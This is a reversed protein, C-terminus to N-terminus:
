FEEVISANTTPIYLPGGRYSKVVFFTVDGNKVKGITEFLSGSPLRFQKARTDPATYGLVDPWGLICIQKM